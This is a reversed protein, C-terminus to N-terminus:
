FAWSLWKLYNSVIYTQHMNWTWKYSTPPTTTSATSVKAWPAYKQGPKQDLMCHLIRSPHFFRYRRYTTPSCFHSNTQRDTHAHVWGFIVSILVRASCIWSCRPDSFTPCSGVFLIEGLLPLIWYFNPMWCLPSQASPPALTEEKPPLPFGCRFLGFWCWFWWFWWWPNAGRVM